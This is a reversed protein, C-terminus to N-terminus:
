LSLLRQDSKNFKSKIDVRGSLKKINSAVYKDAVKECNFQIIDGPMVVIANESEITVRGTAFEFTYVKLDGKYNISKAIVKGRYNKQTTEM